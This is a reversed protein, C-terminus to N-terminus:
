RTDDIVLIRANAGADVATMIREAGRRGHPGRAPEGSTGPSLHTGCRPVAGGDRPAPGPVLDTGAAVSLHPGAPHRPVPADAGVRLAGEGTRPGISVPAVCSAARRRGRSSRAAARRM